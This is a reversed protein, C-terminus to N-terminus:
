KSLSLVLSIGSRCPEEVSLNRLDQVLSRRTRAEALFAGWSLEFVGSEHTAPVPSQVPSSRVPVSFLSGRRAVVGLGVTAALGDGVSLPCGSPQRGSWGATRGATFDNWLSRVCFQRR